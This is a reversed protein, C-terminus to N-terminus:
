YLNFKVKKGRWVNDLMLVLIIKIYVENDLMIKLCCFVWMSCDNWTPKKRIVMWCSEYSSGACYIRTSSEKSNEMSKWYTTNMGCNLMDAVEEPTILTDYYDFM